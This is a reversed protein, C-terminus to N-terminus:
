RGRFVEREVDPRPRAGVDDTVDVVDGPLILADVDHDTGLHELM